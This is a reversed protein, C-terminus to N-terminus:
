VCIGMVGFGRTWVVLGGEVCLHYWIESALNITGSSFLPKSGKCILSVAEDNSCSGTSILCDPESSTCVVFYWLSPSPNLILHGSSSNGGDRYGLDHCASDVAGSVIDCVYRWGHKGDNMQLFGAATDPSTISMGHANVLRSSINKDNTSAGFCAMIVPFLM